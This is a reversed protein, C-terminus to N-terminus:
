GQEAGGAGPYNLRVPTADDAAALEALQREAAARMQAIFSRRSRDLAAIQDEMRTLEARAFEM